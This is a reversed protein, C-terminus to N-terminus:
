VYELKKDKVQAASGAVADKDCEAQSNTNNREPIAVYCFLFTLMLWMLHPARALSAESFNHGIIIGFLVIMGAFKRRNNKLLKTLNVMAQVLIAIVLLVGVFGGRVLLDLYGDHFQGYSIHFKKGFSTLSDFSWGLMPKEDIAKMAVEWLNIRGTLTQSRGLREFLWNISYVEPTIVYVFLLFVVMVGVIIMSWSIQGVITRSDIIRILIPLMLVTALALVISTVSDSKILCIGSAAIVSLTFVIQYIKKNRICFLYFCSAYVSILSLAGLTNPHSTLGVWRLKTGILMIGRQPYFVATALSAFVAMASFFLMMRAFRSDRGGLGYVCLICVLLTAASHGWFVFVKMPHTSWLASLVVYVLFLAYTYLYKLNNLVVGIKPIALVFALAYIGSLIYVRRPDEFASAYKGGYVIPKQLSITTAFLMLFFPLLYLLEFKDAPEALDINKTPMSK